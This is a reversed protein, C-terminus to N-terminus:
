ICRTRVWRAGTNVPGYGNIATYENFYQPVSLGLFISFGLIFKTRFSNLNCFQLFSLGGAGAFSPCFHFMVNRTINRTPDHQILTYIFTRTNKFFWVYWCLCLVLLLPCCYHCTPHLCFSSWIKRCLLLFHALTLLSSFQSPYPVQIVFITNRWSVLFQFSFWLDLLYKCWEGVELEHWLWFVQMKETPFGVFSKDDVVFNEKRNLPYFCCLKLRVRVCFIWQSNWVIRIVSHWSGSFMFLIFSSNYEM